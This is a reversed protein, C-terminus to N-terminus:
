NWISVKTEVELVAESYRDQAFWAANTTSVLTDIHLLGLQM